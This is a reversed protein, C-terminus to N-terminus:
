AWFAERQLRNTKRGDRELVLHFQNAAGSGGRAGDTCSGGQPLSGRTSDGGGRRTMAQVKRRVKATSTRAQGRQPPRIRTIAVMSSGITM